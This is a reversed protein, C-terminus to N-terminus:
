CKSTGDRIKEFGLEGSEDEERRWDWVAGGGFREAM